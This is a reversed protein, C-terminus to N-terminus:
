ETTRARPQLRTSCSRYWSSGTNRLCQSKNVNVRIFNRGHLGETKEWPGGSRVHRSCPLPMTKARDPARSLRRAGAAHGRAYVKCASLKAETIGEHPMTPCRPCRKEERIWENYENEREARSSKWVVGKKGVGKGRVWGKVGKGVSSYKRRGGSNSFLLLGCWTASDRHTYVLFRTARSVSADTQRHALENSRTERYGLKGRRRGIGASEWLADSQWCRSASVVTLMRRHDARSRHHNDRVLPHQRGNGGFTRSRGRIQQWLTTLHARAPSWRQVSEWKAAAGRPIAAEARKPALARHPRGGSIDRRESWGRGIRESEDEREIRGVCGRERWGKGKGRMTTRAWGGERKSRGVDACRPTAHYVM